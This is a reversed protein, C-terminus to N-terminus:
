GQRDVSDASFASDPGMLKGCGPSQGAYMNGHEARQESRLCHGNPSCRGPTAPSPGNPSLDPDILARCVDTIDLMGVLGAGGSVPLRRFHGRSMLM